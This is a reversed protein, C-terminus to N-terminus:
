GGIPLLHLSSIFLGLLFSAFRAFGLQWMLRLWETLVIRTMKPPLHDLMHVTNQGVRLLVVRIVIWTLAIFDRAKNPKLAKIILKVRFIVTVIGFVHFGEDLIHSAGELPRFHWENNAHQPSAAGFVLYVFIRNRDSLALGGM